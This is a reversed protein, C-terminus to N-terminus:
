TSGGAPLTSVVRTSRGAPDFHIEVAAGAPMDLAGVVWLGGVVLVYGHDGPPVSHPSAEGPGVALQRGAVLLTGPLESRATLTPEGDPAAAVLERSREVVGGLHPGPLLV